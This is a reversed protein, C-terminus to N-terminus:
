CEQRTHFEINGKIYFYFSIISELSFCIELNFLIITIHLIVVKLRFGNV